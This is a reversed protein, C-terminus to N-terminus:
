IGQRRIDGFAQRGKTTSTSHKCSGNSWSQSVPCKRSFQTERCRLALEPLHRQSRLRPITPPALVTTTLRVAPLGEEVLWSTAIDLIKRHTANTGDARSLKTATKMSSPDSRPNNNRKQGAPLRSWSHVVSRDRDPWSTPPNVQEAAHNGPASIAKSTNANEAATAAAPHTAAHTAGLLFSAQPSDEAARTVRHIYRSERM